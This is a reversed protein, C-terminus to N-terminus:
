TKKEYRIGLKPIPHVPTNRTITYNILATRKHMITELSESKTDRTRQIMGGLHNRSINKNVKITIYALRESQKWNTTTLTNNERFEKYYQPWNGQRYIYKSRKPTIQWLIYQQYLVSSEKRESTSPTEM